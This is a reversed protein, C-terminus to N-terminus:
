AATKLNCAHLKWTVALLCLRVASKSTRQSKFDQWGTKQSAGQTNPAPTTNCVYRIPNPSGYDTTRGRKLLEQKQYHLGKSSQAVQPLSNLIFSFSFPFFFRVFVSLSLNLDKEKERRRRRRLTPSFLILKLFDRFETQKPCYLYFGSPLAFVPFLRM